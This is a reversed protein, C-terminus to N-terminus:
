MAALQAELQEVKGSLEVVANILAYTLESTDVLKYGNSDEKVCNAFATGELEQAVLGVFFQSPTDANMFAPTYRYSRPSIQKLETLGKSYPAIDQKYRNDSYSNFTGGGVKQVDSISFGASTNNVFFRMNANIRIQAESGTWFLSDNTDFNFSTSTIGGTFTKAGTFTQTGALFAAGTISHTHSTATTSNTSSSTIASPTGMTVTGTGTITTFNMGNGSAVSTVTGAGGSAAWSLVGSGDTQLFQNADGDTTPLTLTYSAALASPTQITVSETGNTTGEFLQIQAQGDATARFQYTRGTTISTGATNTYTVVQNAVPATGTFSVNGTSTSPTYAEWATGGSNLKVSQGATVTVPTLTNIANAVLVSLAPITSQGTGGNAEDLVGTVHTTLGVKGWTPATNVGGSILANGTAVDALKALTSTTNAYLLDGVAYSAHGTGGSDASLPNDLYDIADFFTVGNTRIYASRGALLTYASGAPVNNGLVTSCYISANASTNNKVIYTKTEPPAFVNFAGAPSGTLVIIACRAEDEIGNSATLITDPATATVTAAGSVASEILEWNVNTIDGWLGSKEGTQMLQIRLEPSYESAM